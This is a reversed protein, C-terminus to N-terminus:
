VPKTTFCIANIVRNSDVGINDYNRKQKIQCNSYSFRREFTLGFKVSNPPIAANTWHTSTAQRFTVISHWM